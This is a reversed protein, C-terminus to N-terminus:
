AAQFQAQISALAPQLITGRDVGYRLKGTGSANIFSTDTVGIFGFLSRLYPEAFNMVAMPTGQDYVGGSALLFTAKKNRLLGASAGDVYAFTKGVRVIQDIWLKLVSPISFNHMAVGIVYEDADQIEAILEGSLSTVERQRVTLDAEPKYAAGIWEANVPPLITAALDRTVVRGDPHRDRWGQVFEDTLERSFSTGAAFPSSDIRLLTRMCLPQHTFLM